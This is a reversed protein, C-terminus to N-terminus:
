LLNINTNIINNSASIRPPKINMLNKLFFYFYKEFIWFLIKSKKVVEARKDNTVDM